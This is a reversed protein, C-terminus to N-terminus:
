HINPLFIYCNVKTLATCITCLKRFCMTVPFNSLKLLASRDSYFNTPCLCKQALFSYKRYKGGMQEQWFCNTIMHLIAHQTENCFAKNKACSFDLNGFDKGM